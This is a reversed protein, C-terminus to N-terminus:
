SAINYFLSNSCIDTTHHGTVHAEKLKISIGSLKRESKASHFMRRSFIRDARRTKMIKQKTLWVNGISGTAHAFRKARRQLDPPFFSGAFDIRNSFIYLYRQNGDSHFYIRSEFAILVPSCSQRLLKAINREAYIASLSSYASVFRERQLIFSLSAAPSQM